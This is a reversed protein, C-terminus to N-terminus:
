TPTSDPLRRAWQRLTRLWFLGGAFQAPTTSITLFFTVRFDMVFLM